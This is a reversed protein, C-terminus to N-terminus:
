DGIKKITGDIKYTEGTAIKKLKNEEEDAVILLREFSEIYETLKNTNLKSVAGLLVYLYLMYLFSSQTFGNIDAILYALIAFGAGLAAGHKLDKMYRM